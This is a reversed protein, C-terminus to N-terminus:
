ECKCSCVCAPRSPWRGANLGCPVHTPATGQLPSGAGCAAPVVTGSVSVVAHGAQGLWLIGPAPREPTPGLDSPGPGPGPVPLPRAGVKEAYVLSWQEHSRSWVDTEPRHLEWGLLM